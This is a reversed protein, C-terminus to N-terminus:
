PEIRISLLVGNWAWDVIEGDCSCSILEAQRRVLSSFYGDKLFPVWFLCNVDKKHEM